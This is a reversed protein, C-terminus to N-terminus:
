KRDENILHRTTMGRLPHADQFEKFQAFLADPDHKTSTNEIPGLKAVPVGRHTIIFNEGQRVRDLLESLKTKADFAGITNTITGLLIPSSIRFL